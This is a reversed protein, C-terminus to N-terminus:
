DKRKKKQGTSMGALIGDKRKGTRKELKKGHSVIGAFNNVAQTKKRPNLMEPNLKIYAYPEHTGPRLVDGKGKKSLYAAGTELQNRGGGIKPKNAKKVDRKRVPEM